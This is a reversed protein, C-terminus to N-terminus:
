LKKEHMHLPKLRVESIHPLYPRVTNALNIGCRGLKQAYRITYETGGPTGDFYSIVASSADILAKDRSQHCWVTYRPEVSGSWAARSHAYLFREHWEPEGRHDMEPYPLLAWLDIKLGADQLQLVSEAAWLDFGRAMGSLFHRFGYEYALEISQRLALKIERIYPESEEGGHPMKEPRYGTFTCVTYPTDPFILSNMM